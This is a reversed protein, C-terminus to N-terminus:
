EPEIMNFLNDALNKDLEKLIKYENLSSGSDKIM